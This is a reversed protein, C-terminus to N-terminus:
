TPDLVCPLLLEFRRPAVGDDLASLRGGMEAALEVCLAHGWRDGPAVAHGGRVDVVLSTTGPETCAVSALLERPEPQHAGLLTMGMLLLKLLIGLRQADAEAEFVVSEDAGISRPQISLSWGTLPQHLGLGVWAESLARELSLVSLKPASRYSFLKLQQVLAAAGDIASVAHGLHVRVEARAGDAVPLGSPADVPVLAKRLSEHVRQTPAKLAQLIQGLLRGLVLLREGHQNAEYAQVRHERTRWEIRAMHQRLARSHERATARAASAQKQWNLADAYRGLDAHMGALRLVSHEVAASFQMDRLVELRRRQQVIAQGTRGASLHLTTLADLARALLKRTGAFRRALRMMDAAGVRAEADNRLWAQLEVRNALAHLADHPDHRDLAFATTATARAADWQRNARDQQGALALREGFRVHTLALESACRWRHNPLCGPWQAHRALAEAFCRLAEEYEDGTALVDALSRLLRLAMEREAQRVALDIGQRAQAAAHALDGVDRFIAVLVLAGRLRLKMDGDDQLLACAELAAAHACGARAQQHLAEACLLLAWALPRTQGLSRARQALADARVFGGQVDGAALLHEAASLQAALSETSSSGATM